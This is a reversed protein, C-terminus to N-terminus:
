PLKKRPRPLGYESLRKVLTRRSIGLELAAQTQNGACRALAEVIRERELHAMESRLGEAAPPAGRPQQDAAPPRFARRPAFNTSLRLAPLHTVGIAYANCLLVARDIVNRLERINGPWPYARLAELVDVSLRPAPRGFRRAAEEVFAR